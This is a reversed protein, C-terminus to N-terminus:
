RRQRSLARERGGAPAPFADFLDPKGGSAVQDSEDRECVVGRLRQGVYGDGRALPVVETNGYTPELVALVTRLVVSALWGHLEV